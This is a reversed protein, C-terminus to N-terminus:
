RGAGSAAPSVSDSIELRVRGFQEYVRMVDAFFATALQRYGAPTFHIYDHQALGAHVWDSMSGTGGMRQRTDWFACGNERCAAQQAEIIGDLGPLPRWTGGSRSWSDPPGIVLISATPIARRIRQLVASFMSRYKEANWRQDVAENTGYALVVLGPNRRRVYAAFMEEDWRLMVSAEVGDIGMAEYTVGTERDTVWGFIRIPRSSLTKLTFRHPGPKVQLRVVGPAFDGATSFTELPQDGDFLALDGGGPQQLYHVELYDCDSAIFVSQDATRTSISVGGLGRYADGAASLLGATRWGATGGGRVDLRRYSRFPHGAFVFGSGGDGFREQLLQRITGSLDDSATHSDGFHLVHVAPGSKPNVQLLQEFAPVLAEPQAIARPQPDQLTDAVKRSAASPIISNREPVATVASIHDVRQFGSSPTVLQLMICATSLRVLIGMRM